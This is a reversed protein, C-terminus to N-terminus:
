DQLVRMAPVGITTLQPIALGPTRQAELCAGKPKSAQERRM